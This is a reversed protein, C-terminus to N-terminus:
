ILDYIFLYKMSFSNSVVICACSFDSDMFITQGTVISWCCKKMIQEPSAINTSKAIFYWIPSVPNRSPGGLSYPLSQPNLCFFFYYYYLYMYTKLLFPLSFLLIVSFPLFHTRAVGENLITYVLFPHAILTFPECVTWRMLSFRWILPPCPTLSGM